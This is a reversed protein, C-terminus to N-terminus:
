DQRTILIKSIRVGCAHRKVRCDRRWMVDLPYNFM